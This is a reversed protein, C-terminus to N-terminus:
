ASKIIIHVFFEYVLATVSFSYVIILYYDAFVWFSCLVHGFPFYGLIVVVSMLPFVLVGLLIDCAALNAMYLDIKHRKPLKWIGYLTFTNLVVVALIFLLLAIVLGITSGDVNFPRSQFPSGSGNNSNESISPPEAFTRLLIEKEPVMTTTLNFHKLSSSVNILHGM